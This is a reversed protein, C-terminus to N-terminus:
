ASRMWEVLHLPPNIAVLPRLSEPLADPVFLVGSFIYMLIILLTYGTAWTPLVMCILGNSIGYGAGLLLAAALALAAEVPDRPTVDIGAVTLVAALVIVMCCAGLGELIVRAFLLDIIKVAPFSLLPKNFIVSYMVFRSMYQFAMFPALGTAFFLASSDGYPAARGTAGYIGLLILIHALPWAIALLFGLGHGFFRTRIDRLMIAVVVRSQRQLAGGFSYYASRENM